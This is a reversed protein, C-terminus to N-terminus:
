KSTTSATWAKKKKTPPPSKSFCTQDALLHVAKKKPGNQRKHSGTSALSNGMCIDGAWPLLPCPLHQAFMCLGSQCHRTSALRLEPFNLRREPHVVPYGKPAQLLHCLWSRGATGSKEALSSEPGPRQKSSKLTSVPWQNLIHKSPQSNALCM